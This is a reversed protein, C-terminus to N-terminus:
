KKLMGTNGLGGYMNVKDGYHYESRNFQVSQVRLHLEKEPNEVAEVIAGVLGRLEERDPLTVLASAAGSTDIALAYKSPSTLVKVFWAFLVVVAVLSVGRVEPQAHAVSLALASGLVFYCFAQVRKPRFEATYVRVINHLPYAADGLWLLRKSVRLDVTKGDPPAPPMSPPGWAGKTEVLGGYATHGMVTHLGNPM